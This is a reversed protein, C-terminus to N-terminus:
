LPTLSPPRLALRMAVRPWAGVTDSLRQHFFVGYIESQSPFAANSANLCTANTSIM